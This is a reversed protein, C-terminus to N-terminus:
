YCYARQLCTVYKEIIRSNGKDTLLTTSLNHHPTEALIGSTTTESGDEEEDNDYDLKVGHKKLLEEARRLRAVIDTAPIKKKRRRPPVFARQVCEARAKVCNSCPKTKDCRVKRQQCLICSHGRTIKEVIVQPQPHVPQSESSLTGALMM